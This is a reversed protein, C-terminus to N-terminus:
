RFVEKAVEIIHDTNLKQSAGYMARAPPNGSTLVVSKGNNKGGKKTALTYGLNGPDGVYVWPPHAGKGQGYEGRGVAGKPLMNPDPYEEFITGTGFEIFAVVGKESTAQLIMTKNKWYPKWVVVDNTGAYKATQPNFGASAIEYGENMLREILENLKEPITKEAYTTLERVVKILGKTHIELM